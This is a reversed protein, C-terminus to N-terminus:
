EADYGEGMELMKREYALLLRKINILDDVDHKINCGKIKYDIINIMEQFYCLRSPTTVFHECMFCGLLSNMDCKKADCIGCGNEIICSDDYIYSDSVVKGKIEVDGIIIKNTAELVSGLSFRKDVYHDNDMKINKHGTLVNQALELLNNKLRYERAYTIHTDRLNSNTVVVDLGAEKSCERLFANMNDPTILNIEQKKRGKLEKLFIYKELGHPAKRSLAETLIIANDIEDKIERTISIDVEDKGGTKIKSKIVYQNRKMAEKICDRRLSLIHTIRMETSILLLYIVIYLEDLRNGKHKIVVKTLKDLDDKSLAMANNTDFAMGLGELVFSKSKGIRNGFELATYDLFSKVSYIASMANNYKLKSLVHHKFALIKGTTICGKEENVSYISNYNENDIDDLFILFEKIHRYRVEKSSYSIEKNWIYYKIYYRYKESIQSFDYKIVGSNTISSNSLLSEDKQIMLWKNCSPVTDWKSHVIVEYGEAVETTFSIRNLIRENILRSRFIDVGYYREIDMYIHTIFILYRIGKDYFYKIQALYTEYSFDSIGYVGCNRLSESFMKCIKKIPKWNNKLKKLERIIIMRIEVIDTDIYIIPVNSEEADDVYYRHLHELKIIKDFTIKDSKNLIAVALQTFENGVNNINLINMLSKIYFGKRGKYKPLFNYFEILEERNCSAITKGQWFENCKKKYWKNNKLYSESGGDMDIEEFHMKLIEENQM